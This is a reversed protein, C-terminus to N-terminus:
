RGREWAGIAAVLEGEGWAARAEDVPPRAADVRPRGPRRVMGRDEAEWASWAARLGRPAAIDAARWCAERWAAGAPCELALAALLAGEPGGVARLREACRRAHAWDTTDEPRPTTEELYGRLRALFLDRTEEAKRSDPHDVGRLLAGWVIRVAQASADASAGGARGQLAGLTSRPGRPAGPAAHGQAVFRRALHLEVLVGPWAARARDAESLVPAAWSPPGPDDEGDDLDGPRLTPNFLNGCHCHEARGSYRVRLAVDECRACLAPSAEAAPTDIADVM